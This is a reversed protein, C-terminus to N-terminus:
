LILNVTRWLFVIRTLTNRGKKKTKKSKNKIIYSQKFNNLGGSKLDNWTKDMTILYVMAALQSNQFKCTNTHTSANPMIYFPWSVFVLSCSITLGANHQFILYTFNSKHPETFSSFPPLALWMEWVKGFHDDWTPKYLKYLPFKYKNYNRNVTM